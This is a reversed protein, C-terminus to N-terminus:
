IAAITFTLVDSYEGARKGVVSGIDITLPYSDARARRSVIDFSDGKALNVSRDGVALNYDVYWDTAAMRLRGQNASSVSVSYGRTSLVFLQTELSRPGESLEGLDITAVGNARHFEGKLGMVAASIVQVGLTQAREAIPAGDGTEVSFVVDQSYTGESMLERPVAAFSFRFLGRQGPALSVPRANLRRASQGTRPTLDSGGREDVLVYALREGEGALALGFPEGRLNVQLAGSCTADGLNILALDFSRAADDQTFPDYRIVWQDEAPEIALRCDARAAEASLLAVLGALAIAWIPRSISSM